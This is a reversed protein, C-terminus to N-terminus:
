FVAFAGTRAATGAALQRIDAGKKCDVFFAQGYTFNIRETRQTTSIVGTGFGLM